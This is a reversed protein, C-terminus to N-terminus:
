VTSQAIDDYSTQHRLKKMQTVPILIGGLEYSTLTVQPFVLLASPCHRACLLMNDNATIEGHPVVSMQVLCHKMTCAAGRGVLRQDRGPHPSTPSERGDSHCGWLSM